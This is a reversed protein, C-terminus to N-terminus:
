LFPIVVGKDAPTQDQDQVGCSHPHGMAVAARVVLLCVGVERAKLIFVYISEQKTYSVLHIYICLGFHLIDKERDITMSITIRRSCKAHM